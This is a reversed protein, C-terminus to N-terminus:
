KKVNFLNPRFQLACVRFNNKLGVWCGPRDLARFAVGWDLLKGSSTEIQIFSKDKNEPFIFVSIRKLGTKRLLTKGSLYYSLSDPSEVFCQGLHLTKEKIALRCITGNGDAYVAQSISLFKLIFILILTKPSIRRTKQM